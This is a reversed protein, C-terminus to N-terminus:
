LSASQDCNPRHFSGITRLDTHRLVGITQVDTLSHEPDSYRNSLKDIESSLTANMARIDWKKPSHVLAKGYLKEANQLDM